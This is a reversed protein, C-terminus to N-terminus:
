TGAKPLAGRHHADTHCDVLSDHQETSRHSEPVAVGDLLTADIAHLDVFAGHFKIDVCTRRGRNM